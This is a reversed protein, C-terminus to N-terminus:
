REHIKKISRLKEIIDERNMVTYIMDDRRWPKGRDVTGLYRRTPFKGFIFVDRNCIDFSFFEMTNEVPIGVTLFRLSWMEHIEIHEILYLLEDPIGTFFKDLLEMGRLGEFNMSKVKTRFREMNMDNPIAFYGEFENEM